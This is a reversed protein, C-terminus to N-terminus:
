PSPVTVSTPGGSAPNAQYTVGDSGVVADAIISYSVQYEGPPIDDIIIQVAQGSGIITIPQTSTYTENPDVDTRVATITLTAPIETIGAATWDADYALYYSIEAGVSNPTAGWGVGISVSSIVTVDSNVVNSTAAAPASAAIVIAPAAWAAGIIVGRRAPGAGRGQEHM